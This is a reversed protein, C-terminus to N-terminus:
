LAASAMIRQESESPDGVATLSASAQLRGTTAVSTPSTRSIRSPMAPASIRSCDAPARASPRFFIRFAGGPNTNSPREAIRRQLGRSVPHPELAALEAELPDKPENM